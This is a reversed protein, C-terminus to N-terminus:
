VTHRGASQIEGASSVAFIARLADLEEDQVAKNPENM